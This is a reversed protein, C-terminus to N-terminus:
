LQQHLALFKETMQEWSYKKREEQIYPMFHAAGLDYLQVIGNAIDESTPETVVGVKLHPVTDALGGVNTVLMPKSFHYALPTVGSQTANKYPQIIFDAASVYNTM